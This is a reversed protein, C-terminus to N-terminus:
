CSIVFLQKTLYIKIEKLFTFYDTFCVTKESAMYFIMRVQDYMVGTGAM